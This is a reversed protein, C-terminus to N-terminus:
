WGEEGAIQYLEELFQPDYGYSKATRRNINFWSKDASEAGKDVKQEPHYDASRNVLISILRATGSTEREGASFLCSEFGPRYLGEPLPGVASRLHGELEKFVAEYLSENKTAEALCITQGGSGTFRMWFLPRLMAALGVFAPLLTPDLNLRDRRIVENYIVKRRKLAPPLYRGYFGASVSQSAFYFQDRTAKQRLQEQFFAHLSEQDVAGEKRFHDAIGKIAISGLAGTVRSEVDRVVADTLVTVLLRVAQEYSIEPFFDKERFASKLQPGNEKIFNLVQNERLVIPLGALAPQSLLKGVFEKMKTDYREPMDDGSAAIQM